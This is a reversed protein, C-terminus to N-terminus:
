WAWLMSIGLLFFISWEFWSFPEEYVKVQSDQVVLVPRQEDEDDSSYLDEQLRSYRM